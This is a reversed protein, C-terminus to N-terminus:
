KTGSKKELPGPQRRLVVLGTAPETESKFASPYVSSFGYCVKLTDGDLSYICKLVEKVPVNAKLGPQLGPELTIDLHKPDKKPDLRFTGKAGIGDKDKISIGDLTFVWQSEQGLFEKSAPLGRIDHSEVNWTGELAVEDKESGGEKKDEGLACAALSIWLLLCLSAASMKLIPLPKM